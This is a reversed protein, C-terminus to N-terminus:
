FGVFLTLDDHDATLPRAATGAHPFHERGRGRQGPLAHAALDGQDSIASEGAGGTAEADAMDPGLRRDTARDRQQAVAIDDFDVGLDPSKVYLQVVRLQGFTLGFPLRALSVM